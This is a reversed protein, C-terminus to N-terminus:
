RIGHRALAARLQSAGEFRVATFGCGRAAACNVERDDVFVCSGAPTALSSLANTYALPDPKRLRTDFSVFSWSLYRSLELREEISHYWSPYNSFAHIAHGASALEALLAEMGDLWRYSEVMCAKLGAHDFSRGDLFFSAFFEDETIAAREFDAWATPHKQALLEDFSLEFFAPVEAYFPDYVLTGLVDFLLIPPSDM